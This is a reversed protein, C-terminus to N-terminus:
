GSGIAWSSRPRGTRHVTRCKIDCYRRTDAFWKAVLFEKGCADCTVYAARIRIGKPTAVFLEDDKVAEERTQWAHRSTCSPSCFKQPRVNRPQALFEEGCHECLLRVARARTGQATIIYDEEDRVRNKNPTRTRNCPSCSPVLNVPDNNRKNDDLHDVVLAGRVNGRRGPMWTVVVGCHHCPHSGAGIKEWLVLRHEYAYRADPPYLPHGAPVPVTKYLRPM